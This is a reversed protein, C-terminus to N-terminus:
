RLFNAMMQDLSPTNTKCKPVIGRRRKNKDVENNIAGLRKESLGSRDDCSLVYGDIIFYNAGENEELNKYRRAPSAISIDLISKQDLESTQGHVIKAIKMCKWHLAAPYNVPWARLSMWGGCPRGDDEGVLKGRVLQGKRFSVPMLDKHCEVYRLRGKAGMIANMGEQTVGPLAGNGDGCTIILARLWQWRGDLKMASAYTKLMRDDLIPADNATGVRLQRTRVGFKLGVLAPIHLLSLLGARTVTASTVDYIDVYVLWNMCGGIHDAFDHPLRHTLKLRRVAQYGKNRNAQKSNYESMESPFREVFTKYVRLSDKGQRVIEEWILQGIPLFHVRLLVNATLSTCHDVAIRLTIERLSRLKGGNDTKASQSLLSNYETTCYKEQCIDMWHFKLPKYSTDVHLADSSESLRIALPDKEKFYQSKRYPNAKSCRQKNAERDSVTESDRYSATRPWRRRTSLDSHTIANLTGFVPDTMITTKVILNRSSVVTNTTASNHRAIGTETHQSRHKSDSNAHLGRPYRIVVPSEVMM